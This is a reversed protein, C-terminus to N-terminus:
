ATVKRGRLNLILQIEGRPLGMAQAIAGADKGQDALAFVATRVEQYKALSKVGEKTEAAPAPASEVPAPQAVQLAPAPQAPEAPAPEAKAAPAKRTRQKKPKPQPEEAVPEAPAATPAPAAQGASEVAVRAAAAAAEVETALENLRDVREDVRELIAEANMAVEAALRELRTLEANLRRQRATIQTLAYYLGAVFGLGLILYVATMSGGSM